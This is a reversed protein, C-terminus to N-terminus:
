LGLLPSGRHMSIQVELWVGARCNQNCQVFQKVDSPNPSTYKAIHVIININNPCMETCLDSYRVLCKSQLKSQM